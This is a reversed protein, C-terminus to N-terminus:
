PRSRRIRASNPASILRVPDRYPWTARTPCVVPEPEVVGPTEGGMASTLEYLELWYDGTWVPRGDAWFNHRFYLIVRVYDLTDVYPPYAGVYGGDAADAVLNVDGNIHNGILDYEDLSHWGYVDSCGDPKSLDFKGATIRLIPPELGFHEPDDPDTMEGLAAGAGCFQGSTQMFPAICVTRANTFDAPNGQISGGASLVTRAGKQKWFNNDDFWNPGAM